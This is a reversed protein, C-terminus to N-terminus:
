ERSLGRIAGKHKGVSEILMVIVLTPISSRVLPLALNNLIVSRDSNTLSLKSSPNLLFEEVM